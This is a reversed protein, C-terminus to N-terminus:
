NSGSRSPRLFPRFSIERLDAFQEGAPLELDVMQNAGLPPLASHDAPGAKGSTSDSIAELTVGANLGSYNSLAVGDFLGGIGAPDGAAFLWQPSLSQYRFVGHFDPAALVDKPDSPNIALDQTSFHPLGQNYEAWTTGGDASKFM